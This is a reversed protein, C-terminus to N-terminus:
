SGFGFVPSGSVISKGALATTAFFVNYTLLFFADRIRAGTMGAFHAPLGAGFLPSESLGCRPTCVYPLFEPLHNPMDAPACASKVNIRVHHEVPPRVIRDPEVCM